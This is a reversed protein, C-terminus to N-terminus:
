FCPKLGFRCLCCLLCTQCCCLLFHFFILQMETFTIVLSNKSLGEKHYIQEKNIVTWPTWRFLVPAHDKWCMPRSPWFEFFGFVGSLGVSGTNSLKCQELQDETPGHDQYVHYRMLRRCAERPDKFPTTVDPAIAHEQDKGLQCHIRFVCGHAIYHSWIVALPELGFPLTFWIATISVTLETSTTKGVQCFRAFLSAWLFSKERTWNWKCRTVKSQKKGEKRTLLKALLQTEVDQRGCQTVEPCDFESM